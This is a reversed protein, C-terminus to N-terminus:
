PLLADSFRQQFDRAFQENVPGQKDALDAAVSLPDDHYLLLQESITAAEISARLVDALGEDESFYHRLAFKVRRWYEDRMGIPFAVDFNSDNVYAM